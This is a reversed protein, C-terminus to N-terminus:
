MNKHDKDHHHKLGSRYQFGKNCIKCEYLYDVSHKKQHEKLQKKTATIFKCGEYDCKQEKGDHKQLHLTLDWKRHFWKGCKACMCQDSFNKRHFIKHMELESEFHFSYNCQNCHFKKEDHDFMHRSLSSALAFTHNCIGCMQPNHMWRHHENLKHISTEVAKCESCKFTQKSDPKKKLVYTKTKLSGKMVAPENDTQDKMDPLPEVTASEEEAPKSTTEGVTLYNELEETEVIGAIVNDVSVQDLRLPKPAIDVPVNIGGIPMLQANENDDDLTDDCTDGLSLLKSAAELDEETSVTNVAIAAQEVNVPEVTDPEKQNVVLDPLKQDEVPVGTLTEGDEEVTVSEPSSM